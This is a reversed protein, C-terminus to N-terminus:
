WSSWVNILVPGGRFDELAVPRGDVSSGSLPPAAERDSATTPPAAATTTEVSPATQDESGGCGATVALVLFAVVLARM